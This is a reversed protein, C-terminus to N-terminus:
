SAVGQGSVLAQVTRITSPMAGLEVAIDEVTLGDAALELYRDLHQWVIQVPRTKRGEVGPIRTRGKKRLLRREEESLGGWVGSDQGTNMAWSLCQLRVPCRACVAKAKEAQVLAPGTTGVPFCLDADYDDKRCEADYRWDRAATHPANGIRRTGAAQEILRSTQATM